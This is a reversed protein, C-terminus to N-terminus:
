IRLQWKPYSQLLLLLFFTLSCKIFLLVNTQLLCEFTWLLGDYKLVCMYHSLALSSSDAVLPLCGRSYVLGDKVPPLCSYRIQTQIGATFDVYLNVWLKVEWPRLRRKQLIPIIIQSLAKSHPKLSIIFAHSNSLMTGAVLHINLYILVSFFFLVSIIPHWFPCRFLTYINPAVYLLVCNLM